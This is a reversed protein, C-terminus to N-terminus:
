PAMEWLRKLCSWKKKIMDTAGQRTKRISLVDNEAVCFVFENAEMLQQKRKDAQTHMHQIIEEINVRNTEKVSALRLIEQDLKDMNGQVLSLISRWNDMQRLLAQRHVVEADSIDKIIHGAAEKHGVVTCDLCIAWKCTECFFLKLQNNHKYCIDRGHQMAGKSMEKMNDVYFNRQLGSVGSVPLQTLHHCNSCPIAGPNDQSKSLETLCRSCFTHHCSLFKAEHNEDDYPKGCIGCNLLENPDTIGVKRSSPSTIFYAMNAWIGTVHSFAENFYSHHHHHCHHHRRRHHHHHHHYHHDLEQCESVISGFNTCSFVFSYNIIDWM